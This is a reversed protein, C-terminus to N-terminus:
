RRIPAAHLRSARAEVQSSSPYRSFFFFFLPSATSSSLPFGRPTRIAIIASPPVPRVNSGGDRPYPPCPLPLNEEGQALRETPSPHSPCISPHISPIPSRARCCAQMCAAWTTHTAPGRTTKGIKRSNLSEKEQMHAKKKNSRPGPTRSVEREVSLTARKEKKYHWSFGLPQPQSQSHVLARPYGM